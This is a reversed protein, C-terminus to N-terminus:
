PPLGSAGGGSPRAPREPDCHGWLQTALQTDGVGDAGYLDFGQFFVASCDANREKAHIVYPLSHDMDDARFLPARKRAHRDDATIGMRGCVTSESGERETDPRAFDLMNQRRLTQNLLSRLCHFNADITGERGAAERLVHMRAIMPLIPVAPPVPCTMSYVPDVIRLRVMSPRIVSQLIDMSPPALAPM